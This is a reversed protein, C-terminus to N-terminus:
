NDRLRDCVASVTLHLASTSVLTLRPSWIVEVRPLLLKRFYLVNYHAFLEHVDVFPEGNHTIIKVANLAEQQEASLTELTAIATLAADEDTVPM